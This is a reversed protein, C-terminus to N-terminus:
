TAYPGIREDIVKQCFEARHFSTKQFTDVYELWGWVFVRAHGDRVAKMVTIPISVTTAYLTQHPGLYTTIGNGKGALESGQTDLDPYKFNTPLGEPGTTKFSVWWNLQNAPTSGSNELMPSIRQIDNVVGLQFKKVFVFARQVEILAERSITVTDLPAKAAKAAVRDTRAMVFMQLTAIICLVFTALALLATFLSIPERCTTRWFAKWGSEPLPPAVPENTTIPENPM